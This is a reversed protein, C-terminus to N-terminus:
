GLSNTACTLPTDLAYSGCFRSGHHPSIPLRGGLKPLTPCHYPTLCSQSPNTEGKGQGM